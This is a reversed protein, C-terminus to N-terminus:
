LSTIFKGIREMAEKLSKMDTAYCCRIYDHSNGIFSNGPVVAVKYEHLLRTAFEEDSLGFKKVSPFIYFAGKPEHVEFGMEVLRNYVFRRRQNYSAKMKEMEEKGNKLAEVAARQSMIPACLATYQHIKLIYGMLEAPACIYGIRWGTMAYAKSFGNFLVLKDKIEPFFAFSFIDQDYTLETYIEDSFIWLDQTKLYEVLEKGEDMSLAAGTPNSPYSLLIAKTKSTIKEKIQDVTVKFGTKSTDIPVPIGGALKVTPAYSVYCPEPIVVEDGPNLIGRFAIDLGESVGNTVLIENAPNYETNFRNKLYKAIEERLEMLGWNSTYSTEGRELSFLTKEIIHWPTSFDPEGVGLSIVGKSNLVLDFFKRIGSPPIEDLIRAYKSM